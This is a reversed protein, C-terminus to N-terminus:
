ELRICKFIFKIKSDSINRYSVNGDSSGLNAPEFTLASNTVHRSPGGGRRPPLPAANLGTVSQLEPSSKAVRSDPQGARLRSSKIWLLHNISLTREKIATPLCRNYSALKNRGLKHM